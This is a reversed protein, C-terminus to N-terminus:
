RAAFAGWWSRGPFEYVTAGVGAGLALALAVCAVARMPVPAQVPRALPAGAATAPVTAGISPGSPGALCVVGACAPCTRGAWWRADALELPAPLPANWPCLTCRIVTFTPPMSAGHRLARAMM